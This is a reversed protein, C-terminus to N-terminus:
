RRVTFEYIVTIGAPKVPNVPCTFPLVEDEVTGGPQVFTVLEDRENDPPKEDLGVASMIVKRDTPNALASAEDRAMYDVVVVMCPRDTPNDTARRLVAKMGFKSILKDATARTGLYDFKSM